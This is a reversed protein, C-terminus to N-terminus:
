FSLAFGQLISIAVARRAGSSSTIHIRYDLRGPKRGAGWLKHGSSHAQIVYTTNEGYSDNRQNQNPSNSESNDLFFFLFVSSSSVFPNRVEGRSNNQEPM